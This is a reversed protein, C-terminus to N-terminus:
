TKDIIAAGAAIQRVRNASTEAGTYTTYSESVAVIENNAARLVWYYGGARDRMIEFRVMTFHKRNGRRQSCRLRLSVQM